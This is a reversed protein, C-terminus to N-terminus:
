RIKEMSAVETNWYVLRERAVDMQTFSRVSTSNSNTANGARSPLTGNFKRRLIKLVGYTPGSLVTYEVDDPSINLNTEIALDSLKILTYKGEQVLSANKESINIFPDSAIVEFTGSVQFLGDTVVLSVNNFDDGGLHQLLIRGQDIDDQTFQQLVIGSGANKFVINASILKTYLIDTTNTDIDPDIYRLDDPSLIKSQNRVVHFIDNHLRYPANDNVLAIEVLVECVYQFDKESESLVLFEISDKTTESDDHCYYIDGLYLKELTFGNIKSIKMTEPDYNCLVGNQPPVSLKFMLYNFKNFLVEFQRRNLPVRDGEKVSLLERTQYSLMSVLGNPPNYIIKISGFLEECEPVTVMFEFIDIFSSYCTQYTRYRILNKDIDQQTFSDMKKAYEPYGNVYILGYQPPALVTYIINRSFTPLPTTQHFLNDSSIVIEKTGNITLTNQTQIGIKLKTFTIRFDYVITKM